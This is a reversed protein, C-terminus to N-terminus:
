AAGFCSLVQEIVCTRQEPTMQSGSPLCLGRRYLEEAVSGGVTEADRYLPQLHMPKWLPRSEINAEDLRCRLTEPSVGSDPDVTLCSLWYNPEGYDAIPMMSIAELDAFAERYANFHERRRAVKDDLSNMQACGLAALLNSMRYNFGLESHEYHPAPDRAQTSWKRVSAALAADDTVLIGGGSTTLIKNGNFSFVGCFGETGVARKRYSAGLAEAADEVLPVEFRECAEMIPEIDASQGYLHTLIVAKPLCGRAADHELREALLEPDLNWSLRECDILVPVAHEYLIPNVSGVFTLSSAYVRDGAQVKCSRLALHLAATGSSLAVAHKAGTRERVSSEFADLAPGVPAIWGSEFATLLATREAEGMDPPSLYLRKALPTM